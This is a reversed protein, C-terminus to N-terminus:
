GNVDCGYRDEGDNSGTGDGDGGIDGGRDKGVGNSGVCCNGGSPMYTPMGM